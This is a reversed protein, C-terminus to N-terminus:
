PGRPAPRLQPPLGCQCRPEWHPVEERTAAACAKAAPDGGAPSGMDLLRSKRFATVPLKAAAPLPMRTGLDTRAFPETPGGFRGEPVSSDDIRSASGPLFGSM